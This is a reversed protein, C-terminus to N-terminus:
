ARPPPVDPPIDVSSLRLTDIVLGAVIRPRSITPSAGLPAIDPERLDQQAVPSAPRSDRDISCAGACNTHKASKLPCTGNHSCCCPKASPITRAYPVGMLLTM